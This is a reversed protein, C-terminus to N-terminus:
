FSSIREKIQEKTEDKTCWTNCQSPLSPFSVGPFCVFHFFIIWGLLLAHAFLSCSVALDLPCLTFHLQLFLLEHDIMHKRCLFRSKIRSTIRFAKSLKLPWHLISLEGPFTWFHSVSHSSENLVETENWLFTVPLLFFPMKFISQIRQLSINNGYQFQFCFVKEHLYFNM